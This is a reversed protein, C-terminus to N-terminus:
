SLKTNPVADELSQKLKKLADPPVPAEELWGFFTDAIRHWVAVQRAMNNNWYSTSWAAAGLWGAVMCCFAGTGIRLWGAWGDPGLGGLIFFALVLNALVGLPLFVRYFLRVKTASARESQGRAGQFEREMEHSDCTCVRVGILRIDWSGPEAPERSISGAPM